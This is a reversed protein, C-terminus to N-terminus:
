ERNLSIYRIESLFLYNKDKQIYLKKFFWFLTSQGIQCVFFQLSSKFDAPRANDKWAAEHKGSSFFLMFFSCNIHHMLQLIGRSPNSGVVSWREYRQARDTSSCLYLKINKNASLRPNSGLYRERPHPKELARSYWNLWSEM